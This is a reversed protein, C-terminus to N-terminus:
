MDKEPPSISSKPWPEAADDFMAPSDRSPARAGVPQGAGGVVHADVADRRLRPQHAVLDARPVPEHTPAEVMRPMSSATEGKEKVSCGFGTACTM